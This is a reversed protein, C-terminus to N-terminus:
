QQVSPLYFLYIRFQLLFPKRKHRQPYIKGVISVGFDLQGKRCPFALVILALFDFARLLFSIDFSTQSFVFSLFLFLFEPIPSM